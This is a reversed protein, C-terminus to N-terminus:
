SNWKGTCTFDYNYAESKLRRRGVGLDKQQIEPLLRTSMPQWILPLPIIRM